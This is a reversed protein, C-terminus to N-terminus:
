ELSFEIKVLWTPCNFLAINNHFIIIYNRLGEREKLQLHVWLNSYDVQTNDGVYLFLALYFQGSSPDVVKRLLHGQAASFFKLFLFSTNLLKLFYFSNFIFFLIIVGLLFMLCVVCLCVFLCVFNGPSVQLDIEDPIDGVLDKVYICAM